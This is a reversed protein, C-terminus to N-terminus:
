LAESILPISSILSYSWLLDKYDENNAMYLYVREVESMSSYYQAKAYTETFKVIGTLLVILMGLTVTIKFMVNLVKM